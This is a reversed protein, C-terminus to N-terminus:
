ECTDRRMQIRSNDRKDSRSSRYDFALELLSQLRVRDATWDAVLAYGTKFNDALRAPMLDYSAKDSGFNPHPPLILGLLGAHTEGVKVNLAGSIEWDVHKRCKTKPGILVVLVTTDSLFDQQILQKCYEDSNDADIDGAEVSKSVALDGFLNEFLGRYRQDDHHYYSVFTKRKPLNKPLVRDWSYLGSNLTFVGGRGWKGKENRTLTSIQSGEASRNVMWHRQRDEGESLVSGDFEFAQVDRILDQEDRFSLKTIFYESVNVMM